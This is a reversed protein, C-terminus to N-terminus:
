KKTKNLFLQCVNIYLNLTYLTLKTQMHQSIIVVTPETLMWIGM